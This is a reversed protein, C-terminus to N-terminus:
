SSLLKHPLSILDHMIHSVRASGGPDRTMFSHGYEQNARHVEQEMDGRFYQWYLDRENETLNHWLDYQWQVRKYLLKARLLKQRLAHAQRKLKEQTESKRQAASVAKTCEESQLYEKHADLSHKKKEEEELSILVSRSHKRQNM